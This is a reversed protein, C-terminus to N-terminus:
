FFYQRKTRSARPLLICLKNVLNSSQGVRGQLRFIVTSEGRGGGEFKLVFERLENSRQIKPSFMRRLFCCMCVFQVHINFQPVLQLAFSM